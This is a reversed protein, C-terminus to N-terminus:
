FAEQLTFQLTERFTDSVTLLKRQYGGDKIRYRRSESSFPTLTAVFYDGKIVRDLNTRLTLSDATSLPRTTFSYATIRTHAGDAAIQEYGDGIGFRKTRHNTTEQVERLLDLTLNVDAM